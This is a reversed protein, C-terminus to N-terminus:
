RSTRRAGTRAVGSLLEAAAARPDAATVLTEGVLVASFGADGLRVVDEEDRIGSEAVLILKSPLSRAVRVARETDVDFTTLDRQNVGILTAGAVLAREAETEDHVEVLADIGVSVALAILDQLERASLAAVILLVADAGMIRADLVDASRVTFDKRLVPLTVADRAEVLDEVSGSFFGVDTLVSLASAGGAQYDAALKRPDLDPALAGKSPSARKIEAILTVGAPSRLASAFGRTPAASLALSRLVELDRRDTRAAERHAQVIRDLYTAM